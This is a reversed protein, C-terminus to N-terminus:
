IGFYYGFVLALVTLSGFVVEYIGIVKAKAPRRFRSLGFAARAFLFALMLFVLVSTLKFYVLVGAFALASFNIVVPAFINTTKGKELRLRARVYLISPILRAIMIAWLILAGTVNWGGALALVALSSSLAVAGTLEPLLERSQRVADCYIQYIGFPAIILFPILSQLSAFAFTGIAGLAFISGYILAFKRALVTRPLNKGAMWDPILFKLPQRLLFAGVVLLMIWPAALSPALLVGAALPEFLFGWAGHEIPLAVSKALANNPKTTQLAIEM